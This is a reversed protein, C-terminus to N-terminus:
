RASTAARRPRPSPSPTSASTTRRAFGEAAKSWEGAPTKAASEAPGLLEEERAAVADAVDHVLVSLRRPTGLVRVAGFAVRARTLEEPVLTALQELAGDLFSTPLEECGIELLLTSAM